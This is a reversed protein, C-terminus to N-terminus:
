EDVLVPLVAQAFTTGATRRSGALTRTDALGPEPYAQLLVLHLDVSRGRAGVTIDYSGNQPLVDDIETWGNSQRAEGIGYPEGEVKRPRTGEREYHLRIVVNVVRRLM